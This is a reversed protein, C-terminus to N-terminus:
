DSVVYECFLVLVGATLDAVKIVMTLQRAATCIVMNSGAGDQIGDHIGVTGATGLVEDALLDEVGEAQFNIEAAGGSTVATIVHYFTRKIIANDPITVGLLISGQAGGHEDFDYTARAVRGPHLGDTTQPGLKAETIAADQVDATAVSDDLPVVVSPTGLLLWRDPTMLYRGQADAVPTYGPTVNANVNSM